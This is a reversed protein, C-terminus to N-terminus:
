GEIPTDNKIIFRCGCANLGDKKAANCVLPIDIPWNDEDFYYGAKCKPCFTAIGSGAAFIFDVPIPQVSELESPKKINFQM